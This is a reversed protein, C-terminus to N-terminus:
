GRQLEGWLRAWLIACWPRTSRKCHLLPCAPRAPLHVAPYARHTAPHAHVFPQPTTPLAAAQRATPSSGWGLWIFVIRHLGIFHGGQPSRTASPLQLPTTYPTSSFTCGLPPQTAVFCITPSITRSKHGAPLDIHSPCTSRTDVRSLLFAALRAAPSPAPAPRHAVAVLHPTPNPQTTHPHHPPSPPISHTPNRHPLFPLYLTPLPTPPTSTNTPHLHRPPLTSTAHLHRPPPTAHLHLHPQQCPPLRPLM